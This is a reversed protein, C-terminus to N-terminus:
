ACVMKQTEFNITDAQVPEEKGLPFEFMQGSQGSQSMQLKRIVMTKKTCNFQVYSVGEINKAHDVFKTWAFRLSTPGVISAPDILFDVTATKTYAVWERDQGPLPASSTPADSADLQRQMIQMRLRHEEQEQRAQDRERRARAYAEGIRQGQEFGDSVAKGIDPPTYTPVTLPVSPFSSGQTRSNCQVSYGYNYCDTHTTQAAVPAAFCAVLFVLKRM